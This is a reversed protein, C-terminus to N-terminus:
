IVGSQKQLPTANGHSSEAVEDIRVGDSTRRAWAFLRYDELSATGAPVDPLGDAFCELKELWPELGTLREWHVQPPDFSLKGDPGRTVWPCESAIAPWQGRAVRLPLVEMHVESPRDKWSFHALLLVLAATEDSQELYATAVPLFGDTIFSQRGLAQTEGSRAERQAQREKEKLKIRVVLLWLLAGLCAAIWWM